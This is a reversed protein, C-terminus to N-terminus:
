DQKVESILSGYREEYGAITIQDQETAHFPHFVM